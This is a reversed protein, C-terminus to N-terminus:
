YVLLCEDVESRMVRWVNLIIRGPITMSILLGFWNEKESIEPPPAGKEKERVRSLRTIMNIDLSGAREILYGWSLMQVEYGLIMDPDKEEIFLAFNTLMEAENKFCYCPFSAMGTRSLLNRSSNDDVLFVGLKDKESSASDDHIFYFIAAIPDISPDPKLGRRTTVHLEM